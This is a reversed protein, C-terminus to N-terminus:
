GVRFTGLGGYDAGYGRFLTTSNIPESAAMEKFPVRAHGINSLQLTGFPYTNRYRYHCDLNNAHNNMATINIFKAKPLLTCIREQM